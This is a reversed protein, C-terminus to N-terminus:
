GENVFIQLQEQTLGPLEAEVYVNDDDEWVNVAPYARALTPWSDETPRGLLYNMEIQLDSLENSLRQWRVLAM